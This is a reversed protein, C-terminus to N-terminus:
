LAQRAAHAAASAGGGAPPRPRSSPPPKCCCRSPAARGLPPRPTPAPRSSVPPWSACVEKVTPRIAPDEQAARVAASHLVASELGCALKCLSACPICRTAGNAAQLANAQVMRHLVSPRQNHACPGPVEIGALYRTSVWRCAPESPMQWGRPASRRYQLIGCAGGGRYRRCM